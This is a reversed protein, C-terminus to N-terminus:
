CRSPRHPASRRRAARRGRAEIAELCALADDRVQLRGSQEFLGVRVRQLHRAAIAAVGHEFRPQRVLPVHADCRQGLRRDRRDFVAADAEHRFVPRLRIELPHVVDLVPADAALQPPAVADRRPVVLGAVDITARVAASARFPRPAIAVSVGDRQALVVVHEVGPEARGEPRERCEAPRPLRRLERREIRGVHQHRAEVDDEEPDGAHDHEPELERAVHREALDVDGPEDAVLVALLHRLRLAVDDIREVQDVADVELREHGLARRAEHLRLHLRRDLFGRALLKWLADRREAGVCQAERKRRERRHAAVDAEVEAADLAVAVEAVLEPVRRAVHQHVGLLVRVVQPRARAFEANGIAPNTPPEARRDDRDAGMERRVPEVEGRLRHIFEHPVLEAVPVQLEALRHQLAGVDCGLLLAARPARQDLHELARQAHQMRQHREDGLFDPLVDPRQRAAGSRGHHQLAVRGRALENGVCRGPVLNRCQLGDHEAHALNTAFEVHRMRARRRNVHTDRLGTIRARERRQRGRDRM